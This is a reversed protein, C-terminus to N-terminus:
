IMLIRWRKMSGNGGRAWRRIKRFGYGTLHPAFVSFGELNLRKLLPQLELHTSRLGSFALVVSQNGPMFKHETLADAM